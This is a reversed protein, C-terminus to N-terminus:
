FKDCKKVSAGTFRCEEFLVERKGREQVGFFSGKPLPYTESYVIIEANKDTRAPKCLSDSECSSSINVLALM